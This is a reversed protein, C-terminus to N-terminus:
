QSRFKHPKELGKGKGHDKGQGPHEGEDFRGGGQTKNRDRESVDAPKGSKYPCPKGANEYQKCIQEIRSARVELAQGAADQAQQANATQSGLVIAFVIALSFFLRKM